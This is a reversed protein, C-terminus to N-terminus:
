LFLMTHILQVSLLDRLGESHPYLIEAENFKKEALLPQNDDLFKLGEEYADIMQLDLDKKEIVSVKTENNKCSIVFILIVIFFFKVFYKM